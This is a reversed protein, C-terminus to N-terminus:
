VQIWATPQFVIHWSERPHPRRAPPLPPFSLLAAAEYPVTEEHSIIAIFSFHSM